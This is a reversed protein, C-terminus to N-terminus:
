FKYNKVLSYIESDQFLGDFHHAQKFYGEKVFNNKLLIAASDRNHPNIRAEVSHLGIKQFGYELVKEIAEQMYGKKWQDPHLMYGIEARYNQKEFKHFGISGILGANESKLTIGWTIGTASEIQEQYYSILEESEAISRLVPKGIFKMALANGRLLFMDGANELNLVHLQLRETELIPFPDFSCVLM